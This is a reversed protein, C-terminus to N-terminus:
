PGDDDPNDYVKASCALSVEGADEDFIFGSLIAAMGNFVNLRKCVHQPDATVGNVVATVATLRSVYLDRDLVPDAARVTQPLNRGWWTFERAGRIAWEDDIKMQDYVFDLAKAGADPQHTTGM